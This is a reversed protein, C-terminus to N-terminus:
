GAPLPLARRHEVCLAALCTRIVLEYSGTLGSVDLSGRFSGATLNPDTSSLQQDGDWLSLDISPQPIDVDGLSLRDLPVISASGAAVETFLEVNELTAMGELPVSDLPFSVRAERGTEGISGVLKRVEECTPACRYLGFSEGVPPVLVPDVSRHGRIEWRTGSVEFSMGYITSPLGAICGVFSCRPTMPLSRLEWTVLIDESEPRAFLQAGTIDAGHRDPDDDASDTATTMTAGSFTARGQVELSHSTHVTSVGVVGLEPGRDRVFIDSNENTDGPLINSAESMFAAYRGDATVSSIGWSRFNGGGEGAAVSILETSSTVVDHLFVDREGNTDGPVLNTADSWFMVYRGDSSFATLSSYGNAGEGESSVSVRRTEGLLRDHVYVDLTSGNADHPVLDPAESSFAIFRGNESIEPGYSAGSAEDGGSDISVRETVDSFRDRVYIDYTGNTDAPVLTPIRSEFALFRGDANLVPSGSYGVGQGGGTAVSALEIEDTLRDVVFVDGGDTSTYPNQDNAVLGDSKSSFAVFRGDASISPHFASGDNPDQSVVTRPRSIWDLRGSARDLLYVDAWGIDDPDFSKWSEIAVFRADSSLRPAWSDHDIAGLAPFRSIRELGGTQLNRLYINARGNTGERALNTAQSHFAIFAGDPTLAPWETSYGQPQANDWSLAGFSTTGPRAYAAAPAAPVIALFMTALAGAVIEMHRAM